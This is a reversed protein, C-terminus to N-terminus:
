TQTEGENSNGRPGVRSDKTPSGEEVGMRRGNRTGTGDGQAQTRPQPNEPRRGWRRWKGAEM